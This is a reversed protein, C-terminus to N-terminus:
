RGIGNGGVGGISRVGGWGLGEPRGRRRGMGGVSERPGEVAGRRWGDAAGVLVPRDGALWRRGRVSQSAEGRESGGAKKPAKGWRGSQGGVPGRLTGAEGVGGAEWAGEGVPHGGVSWGVEGM